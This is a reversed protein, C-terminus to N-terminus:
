IVKEGPRRLFHLHIAKIPKKARHHLLISATASRTLQQFLPSKSSRRGKGDGLSNGIENEKITMRCIKNFSFPKLLEQIQYLRTIDAWASGVKLMYAVTSHSGNTSETEHRQLCIDRRQVVFDFQKLFLGQMILERREGVTVCRSRRGVLTRDQGTGIRVVRNGEGSVHPSSGVMLRIDAESSVPESWVPLQLMSQQVDEKASVSVGAFIQHLPDLLYQVRIVNTYSQAKAKNAKEKVIRKIEQQLTKISSSQSMIMTSVYRFCRSQAPDMVKLAEIM